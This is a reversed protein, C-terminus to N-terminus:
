SSSKKREREAMNHAFGVFRNELATAMRRVYACNGLLLAPRYLKVRGLTMALLTEGHNGDLITVNSHRAIVHQKRYISLGCTSNLPSFDNCIMRRPLALYHPGQHNANVYVRFIRPQKVPPVVFCPSFFSFNRRKKQRKEMEHSVSLVSNQKKKKARNWVPM